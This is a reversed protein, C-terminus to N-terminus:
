RAKNGRGRSSSAVEEGGGPDRAGEAAAAGAGLLEGGEFHKERDFIVLQDGLAERLADLLDEENEVFRGNAAGSGRGRPFYLVKSPRRGQLTKAKVLREGLLYNLARFSYPNFAPM